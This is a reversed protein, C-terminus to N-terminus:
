SLVRAHVEYVAPPDPQATQLRGLGEGELSWIPRKLKILSLEQFRHFRLSYVSIIPILSAASSSAHNPSSAPRASM